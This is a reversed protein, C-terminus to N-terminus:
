LYNYNDFYGVIEQGIEMDLWNRNSAIVDEINDVGISKAGEVDLIIDNYDQNSGIDLYGDEFGVITGQIDTKINAFQIRENINAASVSFLPDKKIAWDTATLAEDLTGDPVLVLGFTDGFNMLFTQKGQYQEQDNFDNEWYLNASFKAGKDINRIVTYGNTSNSQARNIAEEIFADSGTESLDMDDLSFIGVEAGQYYGGDCLFDIIVEGSEEVQFVGEDFM